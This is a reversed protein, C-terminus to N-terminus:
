RRGDGSELLDIVVDTLADITAQQAEMARQLASLQSQLDALVPIMDITPTDSM